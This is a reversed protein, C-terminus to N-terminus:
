VWPVNMSACMGSDMDASHETTRVPAPPTPAEALAASPGLVVVTGAALALALRAAYRSRTPRRM